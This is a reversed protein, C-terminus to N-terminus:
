NSEPRAKQDIGLTIIPDVFVNNAISSNGNTSIKLFKNLYVSWSFFDSSYKVFLHKLRKKKIIRLTKMKKTKKKLDRFRIRPTENGKFCWSILLVM